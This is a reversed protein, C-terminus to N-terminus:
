NFCIIKKFATPLPLQKLEDISVWRIEPYDVTKEEVLNMAYLQMKWKIHTFIHNKELLYKADKVRIGYTEELELIISKGGQLNKEKEASPLGWLDGLLKGKPRKTILIKEDKYVLAMEMIVEKPKLKKTKIPLTEQVGLAKAKCLAYLPCILCKPSTPTCILAGLEMLGQNFFSPNKHSVAAEAIQQMKKQTANLTIDEKIHFVRSFVRMVNGDVAPIPQHFAISAIAGATYPGIGPLKLIETYDKPMEGQYKEVIIKATQHIHKARSYYGLGEWAKLVREEDADALKKVTPFEAIFRKYYDIVTDVRTQQLMIESIWIHYPNTTERWPLKRHNKEYWIILKGQVELNKETDLAENINKPKKM